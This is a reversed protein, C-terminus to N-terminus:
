IDGFGNQQLIKKAPETKLFKLFERAIDMNNGAIVLARYLTGADKAALTKYDSHERVQSALLLAYYSDGAKINNFVPSKDEALKHFVQLNFLGMKKLLDDSFKGSSNGVYDIILTAKNQDLIQLSEEISIHERNLSEPIIRNSKSTILVLSDRAVLGTNYVDVLGKQQLIGIWDPHASIFIDAPEGSDISNILDASSNFNVSVIVDHKQSYLRAIKTLALSINPEAFITLNRGGTAFASCDFFLFTLFYFVLAVFKIRIKSM